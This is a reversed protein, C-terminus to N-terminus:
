SRLDPRFADDISFPNINRYKSEIPVSPRLLRHTASMPHLRFRELRQLTSCFGHRASAYYPRMSGGVMPHPTAHHESKDDLKRSFSTSGHWRLCGTGSVSVPLHTSYVLPRSIVRELSSPLIAGYSRSFPHGRLLAATVLGLRSNVM